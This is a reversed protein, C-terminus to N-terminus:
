QLLIEKSENNQIRLKKNIDICVILSLNNIKHLKYCQNITLLDIQDLIEMTELSECDTIESQFIKRQFSVEKLEPCGHIQVSYIPYKLDPVGPIHINELRDIV